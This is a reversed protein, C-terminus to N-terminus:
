YMVWNNFFVGYIKQWPANMRCAMEPKTCMVTEVIPREPVTIGYRNLLTKTTNLNDGPVYIEVRKGQLEQMQIATRLLFEAITVDDAVLPCIMVDDTTQRICIYGVCKGNRIALLTERMPPHNLFIELMKSRDVPYITRDYDALLQFNSATVSESTINDPTM